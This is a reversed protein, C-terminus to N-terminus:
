IVFFVDFHSVRSDEVVDGNTALRRAADGNLERSVGRVGGLVEASEASTLLSLALAALGEVELAAREMADNTAEHGLTTVKGAAVAGTTLGDVAVLELILVEDVTVGLTTDEGHGVSAGVGVAALEEEAETGGRMEVALMADETM